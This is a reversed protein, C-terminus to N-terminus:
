RAGQSGAALLFHPSAFFLLHWALMEFCKLAPKRFNASLGGTVDFIFVGSGLTPELLARSRGTAGAGGISVCAGGGPPSCVSKLSVLQPLGREREQERM